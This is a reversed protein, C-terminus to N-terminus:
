TLHYRSQYGEPVAKFHVVLFRTVQNFPSHFLISLEVAAMGLGAEIIGGDYFFFISFPLLM